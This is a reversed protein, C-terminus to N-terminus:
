EKQVSCARPSPSGHLRGNSGIVNCGRLAGLRSAPGGSQWGRGPDSVPQNEACRQFKGQSIDSRSLTKGTAGFCAATQRTVSVGLRKLIYTQVLLLSLKISLGIHLQETSFVCQRGPPHSPCLYSCVSVGDFPEMEHNCHLVLTCMERKSVFVCVCM